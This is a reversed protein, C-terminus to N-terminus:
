RTLVGLLAAAASLISAVASCLAIIWLRDQRIEREVEMVRPLMEHRNLYINEPSVSVDLALDEFQGFAGISQGYEFLEDVTDCRLSKPKRM